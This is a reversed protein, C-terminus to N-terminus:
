YSEFTILAKPVSAQPGPAAIRINRHQNLWWDFSKLRHEHVWAGRRQFLMGQEISGGNTVRILLGHPTNHEEIQCETQQIRETWDVLLRVRIEVCETSSGAWHAPGPDLGAAASFSSLDLEEVLGDVIPALTRIIEKQNPLASHFYGLLAFRHFQKPTSDIHAEPWPSLRNEASDKLRQFWGAWPLALIQGPQLLHSEFRCPMRVQREIHKLVSRPPAPMKLVQAKETQLVLPICLAHIWGGGPHPVTDLASTLTGYIGCEEAQSVLADLTEQDLTTVWNHLRTNREEDVLQCIAGAMSLLPATRKNISWLPNELTWDPPAMPSMTFLAAPAERQTPWEGDFLCLAERFAKFLHLLVDGFRKKMESVVAPPWDSELWVQEHDGPPIQPFRYEGLLQEKARENIRARVGRGLALPRKQCGLVFLSVFPFPMIVPERLKDERISSIADAETLWVFVEQRERDPIRGGGAETITFGIPRLLPDIGATEIRRTLM